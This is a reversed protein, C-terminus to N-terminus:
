WVSTALMRIVSNRDRDAKLLNPGLCATPLFQMSFVSLVICTALNIKSFISQKIGTPNM